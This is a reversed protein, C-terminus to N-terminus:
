KKVVENIWFLKIYLILNFRKLYIYYIITDTNQFLTSVTNIQHSKQINGISFIMKKIYYPFNYFFIRNINISLINWLM